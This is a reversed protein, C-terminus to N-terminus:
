LMREVLRKDGLAPRELDGIELFEIEDRQAHARRRETRATGPSLLGTVITCGVRSRQASGAGSWRSRMTACDVSRTAQSRARLRPMVAVSTAFSELSREM